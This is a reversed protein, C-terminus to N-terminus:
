TRKPILLPPFNVPIARWKIGNGLVYFIANFIM